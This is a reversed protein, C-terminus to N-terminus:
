PNQGSLRGHWRGFVERKRSEPCPRVCSYDTFPKRHTSTEPQQREWERICQTAEYSDMEPMQIDMLLANNYGQDSGTFKDVAVQGNEASEITLEAEEMLTVAVDFNFASEEVVLVRRGILKLIPLAEHEKTRSPAVAKPREM